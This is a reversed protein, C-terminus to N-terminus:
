ILLRLAYGAPTCCTYAFSMLTGAPRTGNLPEFISIIDRDPLVLINFGVLPSRAIPPSAYLKDVLQDNFGISNLRKEPPQKNTGERPVSNNAGVM